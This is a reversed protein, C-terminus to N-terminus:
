VATMKVATKFLRGGNKTKSIVVYYYAIRGRWKHLTKAIRIKVDEVDEFDKFEISKLGTPGPIKDGNPKKRRMHLIVLDYNM